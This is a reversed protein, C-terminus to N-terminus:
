HRQPLLLAHADPERHPGERVHMQSAIEHGSPQQWPSTHMLGIVVTLHAGGPWAHAGHSVVTASRQEAAPVQSQPLAAAHPALRNHRPALQLHVGAEPQGPQQVAAPSLHRGM